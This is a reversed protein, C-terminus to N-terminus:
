KFTSPKRHFNLICDINFNLVCNTNLDHSLELRSTM